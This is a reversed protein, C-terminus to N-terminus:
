SSYQNYYTFYRFKVLLLIYLLNGYIGYYFFIINCVIFLAIFMIDTYAREVIIFYIIVEIRYFITISKPGRFSADGQLFKNEKQNKDLEEYKELRSLQDIRAFLKSTSKRRIMANVKKSPSKLPLAKYLKTKKEAIDPMVTLIQNSDEM